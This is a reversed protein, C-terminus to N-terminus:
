TVELFQMIHITVDCGHYSNGAADVVPGIHSLTPAGNDMAGRLVTSKSFAALIAGLNTLMGSYMAFLGGMGGTIAAHYYRYHLDYSFNLKSKTVEVSDVKVGTIFNDPIPSLVAYGLGMSDTIQDSDKIVVGSITLAAIADTVTTFQIDTTM